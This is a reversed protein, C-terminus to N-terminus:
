YKYIFKSKKNKFVDKFLEKILRLKTFIKYIIYSKIIYFM